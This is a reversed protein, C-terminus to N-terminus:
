KKKDDPNAVQVVLNGSEMVKKMASLTENVQKLEAITEKRDAGPDPVNAQAPTAVDGKWMTLLMMGQLIAIVTLIRTTKM